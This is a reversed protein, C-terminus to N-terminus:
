YDQQHKKQLVLEKEMLSTELMHLKYFKEMLLVNM